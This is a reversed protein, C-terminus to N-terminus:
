EIAFVADVTAEREVKEPFLKIAPERAALTAMSKAAIDRRLFFPSPRATNSARILEGLRVGLDAALQAALKRAKAVAAAYAKAELTSPDGVEWDVSEFLNAGAKVALDLVRQADSVATRVEWMQEAEFPRQQPAQSAGESEFRRLSLRTTEIDSKGVGADHLAETVRGSLRVTEDYAEDKTPAIATCGVHLVAVEADAKVTETVTVEITKDARSVRTTQARATGCALLIPIGLTAVRVKM